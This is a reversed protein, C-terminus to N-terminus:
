ILSNTLNDYTNTMNSLSDINGRLNSYTNDGFTPMRILQPRRGDVTVTLSSMGLLDIDGFITVAAGPPVVQNFVLTRLKFELNKSLKVTNAGDIFSGCGQTTAIVRIGDEPIYNPNIDNTLTFAYLSVFSSWLQWTFSNLLDYAIKVEISTAETSMGQGNNLKDGSGEAARLKNGLNPSGNIMAIDSYTFNTRVFSDSKIHRNDTTTLIEVFPNSYVNSEMVLGKGEDIASSVIDHSGSAAINGRISANCINVLHVNTDRNSHMASEANETVSSGLYAGGHGSTNFAKTSFFDLPRLMYELESDEVYVFAGTRDQIVNYAAQPLWTIQQNHQRSGRSEIVNNIIFNMDDSFDVQNVGRITAGYANTYGVIYSRLLTNDKRETEMTMIYRFRKKTWGNDIRARSVPQMSMGSVNGLTNAIGTVSLEGQTEIMRNITDFGGQTINFETDRMAMENDAKVPAIVLSVLHTVINNSIGM